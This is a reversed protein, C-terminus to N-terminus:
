GRLSRLQRRRYETMLHLCESLKFDRHVFWVNRGRENFLTRYAGGSAKDVYRQVDRVFRLSALSADHKTEVSLVGFTVKAFDVSRLVNLEAGETDLLFFDVHTLELADLLRQLPTCLVRTHNFRSWEVGAWDGHARKLDKQLPTHYKGLLRPPLFEVIGSVEALRGHMFHLYTSSSDCIAAQVGVVDPAKTRRRERHMPNGEVIVRKLGPVVRSLKLTESFRMGDLGGLEMAVGHTRNCFAVVAADRAECDTTGGLRDRVLGSKRWREHWASPDPDPRVRNARWWNAGDFGSPLDVAAELEAPLRFALVVRAAPCLLAAVVVATSSSSIEYRHTGRPPRAM